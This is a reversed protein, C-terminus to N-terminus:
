KEKNVNNVNLKHCINPNCIFINLFEAFFRQSQHRNTIHLPVSCIIPEVYSFQQIECTSSTLPKWIVM